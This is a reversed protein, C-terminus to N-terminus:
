NNLKLEARNLKLELKKLRKKWKAEEKPSLKGTDKLKQYEGKVDNLNDRIEFFDDRADERKKIKDELQNQRDKLEKERQKLQKLSEEIQEQKEKAVKEAELRKELISQIREKEISSLKNTVDKGNNYFLDGKVKYVKGENTIVRENSGCSLLILTILTTIIIRTKM